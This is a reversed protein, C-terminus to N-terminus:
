RRRGCASSAASTQDTGTSLEGKRTTKATSDRGVEWFDHVGSRGAQGAFGQPVLAQPREAQGSLAKNHIQLLRTPPGGHLWLSLLEIFSNQCCQEASSSRSSVGWCYTVHILGNAGTAKSAAALVSLMLDSSCM